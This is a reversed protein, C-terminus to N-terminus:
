DEAVVGQREAGTDFFRTVYADSDLSSERLLSFIEAGATPPEFLEYAQALGVYTKDIDASYAVAEREASAIAEEFGTARWLTIREEYVFPDGDPGTGSRAHRFVCRVAFWETSVDSM